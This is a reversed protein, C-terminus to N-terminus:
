GGSLTTRPQAILRTALTRAHVCRALSASARSVLVDRSDCRHAANHVSSRDAGPVDAGAAALLTILDQGRRRHPRARRVPPAVVGRPPRPPLLRDPPPEWIRVRTLRRTPHCIPHCEGRTTGTRSASRWAR